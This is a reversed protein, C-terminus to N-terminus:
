SYKLPRSRLCPLPLSPLSIPPLPPALRAGINQGLVAGLQLCLITIYLIPRDVHTQTDTWWCIESVVRGTMALKQVNSRDLSSIGGAANHVEPKISSAM